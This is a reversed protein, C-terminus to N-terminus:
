IRDSFGSGALSSSSGCRDRSTLNLRSSQRSEGRLRTTDRSTDPRSSDTRAGRSDCRSRSQPRCRPEDPPIEYSPLEQALAALDAATPPRIGCGASFGCGAPGGCQQQRSPSPTAPSPCSSPLSPRSPPLYAASPSFPSPAGHCAAGGIPARCAATGAAAAVGKSQQKSLRQLRRLEQKSAVEAAKGTPAPSSVPPRSAPSPIPPLNASDPRSAPSPIPPLNASGPRPKVGPIPPLNVSGPRPKVGPIPPLNADFAGGGGGGGGGHGPGIDPLGAMDPKPGEDALWDDIPDGGQQSGSGDSLGDEARGNYHAASTHAASNHSAAGGGDRPPGPPSAPGEGASGFAPPPHEASGAMGAAAAAERDARAGRPGGGRQGGGGCVVAMLSRKGGFIGSGGVGPGGLGGSGDAFCSAPLQSAAPRAEITKQRERSGSAGSARARRCSCRSRGCCVCVFAAAAILLVPSLAVALLPVNVKVWGSLSCGGARGWPMSWSECADDAASRAVPVLRVVAAPPLVTVVSVGLAASAAAPSAALVQLTGLLAEADAATSGSPPTVTANVLVSAASVTLEVAAPPVSLRDALRESYATKDFSDLSGSCITAFLLRWEARTGPSLPPSLTRPPPAPPPPAPAPLAPPQPPPASPPSPPPPPPPSSPPSKFRAGCDNCDTGHECYSETAGAGGDQCENNNRAPCTNSCLQSVRRRHCAHLGSCAVPVCVGECALWVPNSDHPRVM